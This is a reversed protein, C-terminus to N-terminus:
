PNLRKAFCFQVPCVINDWKSECQDCTNRIDLYHKLSLPTLFLILIGWIQIIRVYIPSSTLFWLGIILFGMGFGIFIKQIIKIVRKKILPTISLTLLSIGIFAILFLISESIISYTYLLYGMIMGTIGAPYGCYCGICFRIGYITFTHDNFKTCPPHHTFLFIIKKEKDMNKQM